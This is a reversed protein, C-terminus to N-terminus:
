QDTTDEEGADKVFLMTRDKEKLATSFSYVYIM